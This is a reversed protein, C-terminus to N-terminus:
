WKSNPPQFSTLTTMTKQVTVNIPPTMPIIKSTLEIEHIQYNVNVALAATGVLRLM